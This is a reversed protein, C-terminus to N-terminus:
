KIVYFDTTNNLPATLTQGFTSSLRRTNENQEDFDASSM